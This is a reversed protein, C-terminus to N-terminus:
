EKRGLIEVPATAKIQRGFMELLMVVQQDTSATVQGWQGALAGDLMKLKSGADVRGHVRLQDYEGAEQLRRIEHVVADPIPYPKNDAARLVEGVHDCSELRAWNESAMVFLYGTMVSLYKVSWGKHRAHKYEKRFRPLYLVQGLGAIEEAAQLEMGAVCRVVYWSVSGTAKAAANM